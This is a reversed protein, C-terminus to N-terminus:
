MGKKFMTRGGREMRTVKGRNELLHLHALTEQIALLRNMGDLKDWLGVVWDVQAAIENAGLPENQLAALVQGLRTEHHALLEDVRKSLEAFPREHAPLVMSVDMERVKRLSELYRGLLDEGGTISPTINSTIGLLVHDGSLLMKSKEDYVCVHGPTHGPTLIAQLRGNDGVREEEGDLLVDPELDEPFLMLRLDFGRRYRHFDSPELGLSGAWQSTDKASWEQCRTKIMEIMAWDIRHMIVTADSAAKIKGALGFHDPHFHTILLWRIDKLSIDLAALQQCLADFCTQDNVCSDVMLWGQDQKVLYCLTGKPADPPVLGAPFPIELM